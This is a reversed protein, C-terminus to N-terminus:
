GIEWVLTVTESLQVDDPNVALDFRDEEAENATMSKAMLPSEMPRTYFNLEDWSYDISQLDGLTVGAAGALVKAKAEADKVACALLLEKASEKDAVTFAIHCEPDAGSKGFTYLIRGLRESDSPFELKMNHFYRYGKFRQKWVGDEQYGEYDADISFSNTKLDTEAFGLSALANQLARTDAASKEMAKLYEPETGALSIGLSMTDPAISVKGKGTVKITRM